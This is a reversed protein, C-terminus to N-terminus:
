SMQSRLEEATRGCYTCRMLGGRPVLHHTRNDEGPNGPAKPCEQQTVDMGCAYRYRYPQTLPVAVGGFINPESHM